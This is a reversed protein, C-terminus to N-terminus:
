TQREGVAGELRQVSLRVVPRWRQLGIAKCHQSGLIAHWLAWREPSFSVPVGENSPAGWRKEAHSDEHAVSSLTEPPPPPQLLYGSM